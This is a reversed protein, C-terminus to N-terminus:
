WPCLHLLLFCKFIQQGSCVLNWSGKGVENEIRWYVHTRTWPYPTGSGIATASYIKLFRKLWAFQVGELNFLYSHLATAPYRKHYTFPFLVFRGYYLELESNRNIWVVICWILYIEAILNKTSMMRCAKLFHKWILSLQESSEHIHKVMQSILCARHFM